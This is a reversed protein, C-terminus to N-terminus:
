LPKQLRPSLELLIPTSGEVLKRVDVDGTAYLVLSIAEIAVRLVGSEFVHRRAISGPYDSSHVIILLLLFMTVRHRKRHLYYVPSASAKKEGRAGSTNIMM